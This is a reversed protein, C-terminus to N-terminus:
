RSSLRDQLINYMKDKRIQRFRSLFARPNQEVPKELKIYVSINVFFVNYHLATHINTSLYSKFIPYTNPIPM